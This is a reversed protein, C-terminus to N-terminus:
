KWLAYRLICYIANIGDRVGIKKGEKWDRAVYRIPLECVHAGSRALKATIEPEFGFRDQKLELTQLLGRPLLKYCTEMDTLRLGTMANSCVTLFRNGIRHIWSSGVARNTLFRSGYVVDAQRKVIPELLAPIDRPDYELDADQVVVVDGTAHRFGTRLAAGKGQNHPKFLVILDMLDRIHELKEVTGDTSEDDVIIIEMPIPLARLRALVRVITDCENYVPIVVSLVFGTPLDFSLPAVDYDEAVLEEALLELEDLATEVRDRVNAQKDLDVPVVVPLGTAIPSDQFPTTAM